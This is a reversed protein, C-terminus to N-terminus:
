RREGKAHPMVDRRAEDWQSHAYSGREDALKFSRNVAAYQQALTGPESPHPTPVLEGSPLRRACFVQPVM